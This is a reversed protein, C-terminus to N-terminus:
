QCQMRTEAWEDTLPTGREDEYAIRAGHASHLMHSITNRYKPWPPSALIEFCLSKPQKKEQNRGSPSM